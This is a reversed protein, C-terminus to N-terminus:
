DKEKESWAAAPSDDPLKSRSCFMPDLLPSDLIPKSSAPTSSTRLIM